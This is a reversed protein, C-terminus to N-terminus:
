VWGHPLVQADAAGSTTSRGETDEEGEGDEFRDVEKLEQQATKEFSLIGHHKKGNLLFRERVRKGQCGCKGPLAGDLHRNAFREAEVRLWPPQDDLRGIVPGAHAHRHGSFHLSRPTQRYRHLCKGM